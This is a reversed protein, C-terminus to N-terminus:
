RNNSRSYCGGQQHSKRHINHSNSNGPAPYPSIVTRIPTPIIRNNSNIITLPHKFRRYRMKLMQTDTQNKNTQKNKM